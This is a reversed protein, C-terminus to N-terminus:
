RKGAHDAELHDILWVMGGVFKEVNPVDAQLNVGTAIQALPRVLDDGLRLSASSALVGQAALPWNEADMAADRTVRLTTLRM